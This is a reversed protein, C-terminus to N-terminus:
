LACSHVYNTVNCNNFVYMVCQIYRCTFTNNHARVEEMSTASIHSDGFIVLALRTDL